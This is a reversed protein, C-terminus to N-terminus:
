FILEELETPLEHVDGQRHRRRGQKTKSPADRTVLLQNPGSLRKKARLAEILDWRERRKLSRYLTDWSAYPGRAIIEPYTAGFRILDEIDEHGYDTLQISREHAPAGPTPQYARRKCDLCRKRVRGRSNDKVMSTNEETRVHGNKCTEIM